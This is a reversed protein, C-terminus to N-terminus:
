EVETWVVRRRPIRVIGALPRRGGQDIIEAGAGVIVDGIPWARVIVGVIADGNDLNISARRGAPTITSNM